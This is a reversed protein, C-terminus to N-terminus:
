EWSIFRTPTMRIPQSYEKAMAEADWGMRQIWSEYKKAYDTHTANVSAPDLLVAEGEVLVVDDGEKATDLALMVNPNHRVDRVKEARPQSFILITAGDWYFWVPVLHPKGNPRVTSFWIMKENQLRENVHADKPQTLDLM